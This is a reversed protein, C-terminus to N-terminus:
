VQMPVLVLDSSSTSNTSCALIGTTLLFGGMKTFGPLETNLLAFVTTTTWLVLSLELIAKPIEQQNSDYLYLSCAFVLVLVSLSLLFNVINLRAKSQDAARLHFKGFGRWLVYALTMLFVWHWAHLAKYWTFNM